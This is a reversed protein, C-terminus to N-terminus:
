IKSDKEVYDKFHNMISQWGARQLDIPNETEAEFIQTITTNNEQELFQIEVKRCDELTYLILKQHIVTDYTGILDFGFSADKAEMRILFQGGENLNQEAKPTHWDPSATYWNIIHEPQTWLTWVTNVPASVTTTVTIKTKQDKTM